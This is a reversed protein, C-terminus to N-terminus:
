FCPCSFRGKEEKDPKTKILYDHVVATLAEKVNIKNLASSELFELGNSKAYEEAEERKVVRENEPLYCKNGVIIFSLSEENKIKCIREYKEKIQKFSEADGISYVLLFCNGFEIWSDMMTQFEDQGGTDLVEM